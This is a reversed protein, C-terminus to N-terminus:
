NDQYTLTFTVAKCSNFNTMAGGLGACDVNAVTYTLSAGPIVPDSTLMSSINHTVGPALAWAGSADYTWLGNNPAGPYATAGKAINTNTPEVSVYSKLTDQARKLAM